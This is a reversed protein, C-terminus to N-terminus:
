DLWSSRSLVVPLPTTHSSPRERLTWPLVFAHSLARQNHLVPCLLTYVHEGYPGTLVRPFPAPERELVVQAHIELCSSCVHFRGSRFAYFALAIDCAPAQFMSPVPWRLAIRVQPGSASLLWPHQRRGRKLVVQAHPQTHRPSTLDVRADESDTLIIAYALSRHLYLVPSPRLILACRPHLRAELGNRTSCGCNSENTTPNSSAANCDCSKM